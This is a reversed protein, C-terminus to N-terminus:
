KSIIEYGKVELYTNLIFDRVNCLFESDTFGGYNVNEDLKDAINEVMEKTIWLLIEMNSKTGNFVSRNIAELDDIIMTDHYDEKFEVIFCRLTKAIKRGTNTQVMGGCNREADNHELDKLFSDFSIQESIGLKVKYEGYCNSSSGIILKNM